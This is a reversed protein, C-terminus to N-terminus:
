LFLGEIFKDNQFEDCIGKKLQVPAQEGLKPYEDLIFEITKEDFPVGTSFKNASARRFNLVIKSCSKRWRWFRKQMPTRNLAFNFTFMLTNLAMLLPIYFTIHITYCISLCSIYMISFLLAIFSFKFMQFVADFMERTIDDMASFIGIDAYNDKEDDTSQTLSKNEADMPVANTDAIEAATEAVTKTTPGSGFNLKNFSKFRSFQTDYFKHLIHAFKVICYSNFILHTLILIPFLFYQMFLQLSFLCLFFLFYILFFKIFVQKFFLIEMKRVSYLTTYYRHYHFLSEWTLVVCIGYFIIIDLITSGSSSSDYIFKSHIIRQMNTFSLHSAMCTTTYAFMSPLSKVAWYEVSIISPVHPLTHYNYFIVLSLVTIFMIYLLFSMPFFEFENNKPQIGFSYSHVMLDCSFWRCQNYARSIRCCCHYEYAPPLSFALSPAISLRCNSRNSYKFSNINSSSQLTLPLTRRKTLCFLRYFKFYFHQSFHLLFCYLLILLTLVITVFYLM